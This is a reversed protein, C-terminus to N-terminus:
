GLPVEALPRYHPGKPSLVSEFLVVRRVTVPESGTFRGEKIRQILAGLGAPSRVRGITLHASFPRDEPPLRLEVCAREVAQALELLQKEGEKVGVWIVRPSQLRPFTGLGDLHYAFPPIRATHSRLATTLSPVQSEETQGLFKLTLHLNDPEVWKVDTQSVRLRQQLVALEQRLRESLEVAIFARIM